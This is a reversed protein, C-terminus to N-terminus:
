FALFFLKHSLRPVSMIVFKFPPAASNPAASLFSLFPTLVFKVNQVVFGHVQPGADWTYLRVM